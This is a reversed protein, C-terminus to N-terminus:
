RYMEEGGASSWAHQLQALLDPLQALRDGSSSSITCSSNWNVAGNRLLDLVLLLYAPVIICLSESCM